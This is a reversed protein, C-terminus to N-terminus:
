HFRGGYIDCFTAFPRDERITFAYRVLMELEAEGERRWKGLIKTGGGVGRVKGEGGGRGAGLGETKEM